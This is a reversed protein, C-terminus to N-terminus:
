SCSFHPSKEGYVLWHAFSLLLPQIVISEHHIRSLNTISEHHIRSPNPRPSSLSTPSFNESPPPVLVPPRQPQSHAILSNRPHGHFSSVPLVTAAVHRNLPPSSFSFVLSRPYLHRQNSLYVHALGLLFISYDGYRSLIRRKKPSTRQAEQVCPSKRM